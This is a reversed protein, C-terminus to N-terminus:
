KKKKKKVSLIHKTTSFSFSFYHQIFSYSPCTWIEIAHHHVVHKHKTKKQCVNTPGAATIHRTPSWNHVQNWNEAEFWMTTNLDIHIHTRPGLPGLSWPIFLYHVKFQNFLCITKGRGQPVQSRVTPQLASQAM